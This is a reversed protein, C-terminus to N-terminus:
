ALEPLLSPQLAVPRARRVALWALMYIVLVLLWVARMGTIMSVYELVGGAMAGVLNVGLPYGTVAQDAFLRSFCVAAFFVPTGVLLATAVVRGPVPLAFLPELPLAWNAIVSGFLLAFSKGLAPARRREVCLNAVFITLLVSAFVAANVTWTSGFLLALRVVAAAEMLSFALGLFLFEAHLGRVPHMRRLVVFSAAVLLLVVALIQAYVPALAPRELYVFPWDDRAVLGRGLTAVVEPSDRLEPLDRGALITVNFLHPSPEFLLVCQDGFASRATSYIRAYLWDRFVSYYIVVMGRANLLRRTDLLAEQTYVYNELRLNAHGSLLAQSDLTGFVVLDFRERTSRLFHRADDVVTRVGPHDYPRAPNHTRGLQLIVPDIEVAVVEQAGNEMAMVVDNGTGAGLVLVKRPSAGGHLKRYVDYARGWKARM